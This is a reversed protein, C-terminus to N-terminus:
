SIDCKIQVVGASEIVVAGLSVMTNVLWSVKQPVYNIETAVDQGVAVGVASKNWMYCQTADPTPVADVTLGNHVIIGMGFLNGIEGKMVPMLTTYDGSIVKVENFMQSLSFPDLVMFREDEFAENQQLKTVGELHRAYTWKGTTTTITSPSGGDLATVIVSDVKRNIAAVTMRAYEERLSVNTKLTDLKDLYIPAYSDALTATKFDHVPELNTVDAATAKTNATVKGLRPFKYTNGTVNRHVRVASLLKSEKQQFLQHIEDAFQTIFIDSTTIAM